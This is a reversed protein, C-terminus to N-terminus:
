AAMAMVAQFTEEAVRRGYYFEGATNIHTRDSNLYLDCSGDGKPTSAGATTDTAGTYLQGTSGSGTLFGNMPVFAMRPAAIGLAQANAVATPDAVAAAVGAKIAAETNPNVGTPTAGAGVLSSNYQNGFVVIPLGPYLQAYSTLTSAILTALAAATISAANVAVADNIGMVIAMMDPSWNAADNIRDILTTTGPSGAKYGTGGIGSCWTDPIGLFDGARRAYNTGRFLNPGATYSDGQVMWRFPKQNPAWLVDLAGTLIGGFYMAGDLEVLITRPKRGGANTFDLTYYADGGSQAPGPTVAVQALVGDIIFRAGVSANAADTMILTVIPADTAFEVRYSAGQTGNGTSNTYTSAAGAISVAHAQIRAGGVLYPQGGFVNYVALHNALASRTAPWQKPTTGSVSSPAAAATTIAPPTAMVGNVQPNSVRAAAYRRALDAQLSRLNVLPTLSAQAKPYSRSLM